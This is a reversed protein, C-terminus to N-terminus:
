QKGSTPLVSQLVDYNVGAGGQGDGRTSALESRETRETIASLVGVQSPPRAHEPASAAGGPRRGRRRRGAADAADAAFAGRGGARGGRVRFEYHHDQLNGKTVVTTKLASAAATTSWESAEALRWQLQYHAFGAAKEARWEVTISTADAPECRVFQVMPAAAETAPADEEALTTAAVPPPVVPRVVTFTYTSLGRTLVQAVRKTGTNVNDVAVIIDGARIESAAAAGGAVVAAVGNFDALDIGFGKDDPSVQVQLMKLTKDRLRKAPVKALSALVDANECRVTVTQPGGVDRMSPRFPQGDIAAVVYGADFLGGPASQIAGGDDAVIGTKALSDGLRM